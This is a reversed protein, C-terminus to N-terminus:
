NKKKKIEKIIIFAILIIFIAGFLAFSVIAM